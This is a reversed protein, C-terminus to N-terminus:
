KRLLKRFNEPINGKFQYSSVAEILPYDRTIVKDIYRKGYSDEASPLDQFISRIPVLQIMADYVNGKAGDRVKIFEEGLNYELIEKDDLGSFISSLKTFSDSYRWLSQSFVAAEAIEDRTFAGEFNDKVTKFLPKANPFAKLLKDEDRSSAIAVLQDTEVLGADVMKRFIGKNFQGYSCGLVNRNYQKVYYFEEEPDINLDDLTQLDKSGMPEGLTNFWRYKRRNNNVAREKYVDVMESTKVIKCLPGLQKELEAVLKPQTAGHKLVVFRDLYSFHNRMRSRYRTTDDVIVLSIFIGLERAKIYDKCVIQKTYAGTHEGDMDIIKNASVSFMQIHRWKDKGSPKGDIHPLEAGLKQLLGEINDTLYMRSSFSVDKIKKEDIITNFFYKSVSNGKSNKYLFDLADLRTKVDKMEKRYHKLFGDMLGKIFPSIREYNEESGTLQERSPVFDVTGIPVELFLVSNVSYSKSNPNLAALVEKIEDSMFKEELPYAVNGQIVYADYETDPFSQRDVMIYANDAVNDMTKHLDEFKLNTNIFNPYTGRRFWPYVIRAEKEFLHIDASNVNFMIELGNPENTPEEYVKRMAPKGTAGVLSNYVKKMGGCYSTWTVQDTYAFPTKSGLGLMGTANNTDTKDSWFMRNFEKFMKQEDMGTGYDRIRFTDDYRTPLQVDFPIDETGAEVHSDWANTSLERIVARVKNKYLNASLVQFAKASFEFGMDHAESEITDAVINEEHNVVFKM